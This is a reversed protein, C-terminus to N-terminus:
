TTEQQCSEVRRLQDPSHYQFRQLVKSVVYDYLVRLTFAITDDRVM